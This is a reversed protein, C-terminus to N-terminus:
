MSVYLLWCVGMLMTIAMRSQGESNEMLPLVKMGFVREAAAEQCCIHLEVSLVTCSNEEISVLENSAACRVERWILM